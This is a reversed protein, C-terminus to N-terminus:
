LLHKAKKIASVFPFKRYIIHMRYIVIIMIRKIDVSIVNYIDWIYFEYLTYYIVYIYLTCHM